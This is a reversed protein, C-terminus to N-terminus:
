VYIIVSTLYIQLSFGIWLASSLIRRLAGSCLVLKLEMYASNGPGSGLSCCGPTSFSQLLIKQGCFSDQERPRPSSPNCFGERTTPSITSLVRGLAGFCMLQRFKMFGTERTIFGLSFWMPFRKHQLLGGAQLSFGGWPWTETGTGGIPLDLPSFWM